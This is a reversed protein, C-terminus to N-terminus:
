LANRYTERKQEMVNNAPGGLGDRFGLIADRQYKSELREAMFTAIEKTIEAYDNAGQKHGELFATKYLERIDDKSFPVFDYM